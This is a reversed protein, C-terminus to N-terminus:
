SQAKFRYENVITRYHDIALETKGAKILAVSGLVLREYLDRFIKDKDTRSSIWSLIEKSVERYESLIAEGIPTGVLHNERFQRLTNLEVANDQLGVAEICATSIFCISEKEEYRKGESDEYYTGGFLHEKKEYRKGDSDEIYEGGFLHEKKEYRKGDSDEYYEGGFLHEKKEYRKGDSDEWYEGGFLHEKKEYKKGASDEYYKSM